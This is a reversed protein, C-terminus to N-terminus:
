PAIASHITAPPFPCTSQAHPSASLLPKCLPRAIAATLAKHHARAPVLERLTGLQEQERITEVSCSRWSSQLWHGHSQTQSSRADALNQNLKQTSGQGAAPCLLAASHESCRLSHAMNSYHPTSHRPNSKRHLRQNKLQGSGDLRMILRPLRFCFRTGPIKRPNSPPRRTLSVAKSRGTLWNDLRRVVTCAEV